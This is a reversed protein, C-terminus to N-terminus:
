PLYKWIAPSYLFASIMMSIRLFPWSVFIRSMSGSTGYTSGFAGTSSSGSSFSLGLVFRPTFAIKSTNSVRLSPMSEVTVSPAANWLSPTAYLGSSTLSAISSNSRSPLPMSSKPSNM